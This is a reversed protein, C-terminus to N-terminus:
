RFVALSNGPRLGAIGYPREIRVRALALKQWTLSGADSVRSDWAVTITGLVQDIETVVGVLQERQEEALRRFLRWVRSGAVIALVSAVMWGAFERRTMTGDPVTTANGM